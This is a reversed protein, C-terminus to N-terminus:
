TPLHEEVHNPARQQCHPRVWNGAVEDRLVVHKLVAKLGVGIVTRQVQDGEVNAIVILVVVKWVNGTAAQRTLRNTQAQTLIYLILIYCKIRRCLHALDCGLEIVLQWM